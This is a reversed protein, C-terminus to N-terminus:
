AADAKGDEGDIRSLDQLVQLANTLPETHARDTPDTSGLCHLIAHRAEEIRSLLRTRDLELVAAEYLQEWEASTGDEPKNM